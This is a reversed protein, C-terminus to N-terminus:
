KDKLASSLILKSLREQDSSASETAVHTIVSISMM